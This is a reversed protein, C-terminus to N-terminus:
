RSTGRCGRERREESVIPHRAPTDVGERLRQTPSPVPVSSLLKASSSTPFPAPHGAAPLRRVAGAHGSRGTLPSQAPPYSRIDSFDLDLTVLIRGEDRCVRDLADDATGQLHQDVVSWADHGSARLLRTAEVPLNEDLKLRM